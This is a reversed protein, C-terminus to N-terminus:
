FLAPDVFYWFFLEISVDLLVSSLWCIALELVKLCAPIDLLISISYIGYADLMVPKDVFCKEWYPRHRRRQINHTRNESLVFM